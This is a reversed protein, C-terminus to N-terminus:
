EIQKDSFFIDKSDVATSSAKMEGKLDLMAYTFLDDSGWLVKECFEIEFWHIAGNGKM